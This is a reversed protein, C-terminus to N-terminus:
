VDAIVYHQDFPLLDRLTLSRDVGLVIEADMNSADVQRM